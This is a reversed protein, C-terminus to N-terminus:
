PRRKSIRRSPRMWNWPPRSISGVSSTVARRMMSGLPTSARMRTCPVARLGFSLKELVGGSSSDSMRASIMKLRSTFASPADSFPETAVIAPVAAAPITTDGIASVM